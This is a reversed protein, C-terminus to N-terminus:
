VGAFFEECRDQLWLKIQELSQENMEFTNTIIDEEAQNEYCTTGYYCCAKIYETEEANEIWIRYNFINKGICGSQPDTGVSAIYTNYSGGIRSGGILWPLLPVIIEHKSM